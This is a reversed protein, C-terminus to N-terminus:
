AGRGSRRCGLEPDCSPCREIGVWCWGQSGAMGQRAIIAEAQCCAQALWEGQSEQCGVIILSPTLDPERSGLKILEVVSPRSLATQHLAHAESGRCTCLHSGGPAGEELVQQQKRGGVLLSSAHKSEQRLVGGQLGQSCLQHLVQRCIQAGPQTLLCLAARRLSLQKRLPGLSHMSDQLSTHHDVRLGLMTPYASAVHHAATDLCSPVCNPMDRQM